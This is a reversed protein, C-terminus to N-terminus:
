RKPKTEHSDFQGRLFKDVEPYMAKRSVSHSVTALYPVSGCKPNRDPTDTEINNCYRTQFIQFWARAVRILDMVRLYFSSSDDIYSYAKMCNAAINVKGQAKVLIKHLDELQAALLFLMHLFNRQTPSGMYAAEAQILLGKFHFFQPDRKRYYEDKSTVDVPVIPISYLHNCTHLTDDFVEIQEKFAAYLLQTLKGDLSAPNVDLLAILPLVLSETKIDALFGKVPYVGSAVRAKLSAEVPGIPTLVADLAAIIQDKVGDSIIKRKEVLGKKQFVESIRTPVPQNLAIVMRKVEDFVLKLDKILALLRDYMNRGETADMEWKVGIEPLWGNWSGTPRPARALAWLCNADFEAIRDIAPKLTKQASVVVNTVRTLQRLSFDAIATQTLDYQCYTNCIKAAGHFRGTNPKHITQFFPTSLYTVSKVKWHVPWAGIKAIRKTVENIVNGGHSHGIFHFSVKRKLYAPLAPKMQNGCLWDGLISGALERNKICNDGSWSHDGFVHVHDHSKQFDVLPNIFKENGDWYYDSDKGSENRFRPDHAARDYSNALKDMDSNVPDVTGAVLVIVDYIPCPQKTAGVANPNQNTNAAANARQLNNSRAPSAM